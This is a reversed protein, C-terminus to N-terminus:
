FRLFDPIKVSKNENFSNKVKIQKKNNKYAQYYSFFIISFIFSGIFPTSIKERTSMKSWSLTNFFIPFVKNNNINLFSIYTNSLILFLLLVTGSVFMHNAFNHGIKKIYNWSFVFLFYCLFKIIIFQFIMILCVIIDIIINLIIEIKNISMSYKLKSIFIRNSKRLELVFCSIFFIVFLPIAIKFKSLFLFVISLFFSVNLFIRSANRTNLFIKNKYDIAFLYFIFSFFSPVMFSFFFTDKKNMFSQLAQSGRISYIFM